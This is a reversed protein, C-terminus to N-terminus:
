NSQPFYAIARKADEGRDVAFWRGNIEVCLRGRKTRWQRQQETIPKFAIVSWFWHKYAFPHHFPSPGGYRPNTYCQNDPCTMMPGPGGLSGVDYARQQVAYHWTPLNPTLDFILDVIKQADPVDKYVEPFT